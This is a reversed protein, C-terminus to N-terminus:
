NVIPTPTPTAASRTARARLMQALKARQAPTAVAAVAEYLLAM